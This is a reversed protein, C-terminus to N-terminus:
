NGLSLWISPPMGKVRLFERNFNSKTNFGSAHIAATVSSGELLLQCAHEIRFRNIYRSLNERYVSNVASSIQKESIAMRRALRRLTLDPDLYLRTDEMVQKLKEATEQHAHSDIADLNARGTVPPAADTGTRDPTAITAEPMKLMDSLSLLGVTLLFLASYGSVIWPRLWAQDLAFVVSIAIDSFASGFLTLAVIRWLLIVRDGHELRTLPLGEVPGSTRLLILAAYGSFVATLIGDLLAPAGVLAAVALVPPVLHVSDPWVHLPRVATTLLTLYALGPILCATVPQVPALATLGYHQNLAILLSQGACLAVFGLVMGPTEGARAAKVGLFALVLATFVPIPLAIM